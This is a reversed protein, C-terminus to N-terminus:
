HYYKLVSQQSWLQVSVESGVPGRLKLDIDEPYCVMVPTNAHTHRVNEEKQRIESEGGGGRGMWRDPPAEM